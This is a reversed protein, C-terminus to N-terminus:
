CNFGFVTKSVAILSPSSRKGLRSQFTLSSISLRLNQTRTTNGPLLQLKKAPELWGSLTTPWIAFCGLRTSVATSNVLSSPAWSLSCDNTLPRKLSFVSQTSVRIIKTVDDGQDIMFQLADEEQKGTKKRENIIRQFMMYLSGGAFTQKLKAPTPLWPFLVVAPTASQMITEFFGLTKALLRPDNAIENCGVTRVTLQFVIKYVSDFPDTIGSPSSAIDKLRANSDAILQSLGTLTLAEIEFLL